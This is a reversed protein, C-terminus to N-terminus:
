ARANGFLSNFGDALALMEPIPLFGEIGEYMFEPISRMYIKQRM